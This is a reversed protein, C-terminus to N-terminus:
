WPTTTCIRTSSPVTCSPRGCGGAAPWARSRRSACRRRGGPDPRPRKARVPRPRSRPRRRDLVDGLGLDAVRQRQRGLGAGLRQRAELDDLRHHEGAEVRDVAGVVLLEAVRDLLELEVVRRERVLRLGRRREAEAEAAAEEAQQVHLDHLLPELALEAQAQDRRRRRDDVLHLQGVALEISISLGALSGSRARTSDISSGYM